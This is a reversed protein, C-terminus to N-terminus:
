KEHTYNSLKSQKSFTDNIWKNINIINYMIFLKLMGIFPSFFFSFYLNCESWWDVSVINVWALILKGVDFDKKLERIIGPPASWRLAENITMELYTMSALEQRTLPRFSEQGYIKSVEEYVKEQIDKHIALHYLLTASAISTTDSGKISVYWDNVYLNTHFAKVIKVLM